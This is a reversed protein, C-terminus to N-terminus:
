ESKNIILLNYNFNMQSIFEEYSIEKLNLDYYFHYLTKKFIM